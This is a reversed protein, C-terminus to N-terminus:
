KEILERRVAAMFAELVEFPVDPKTMCVSISKDADSRYACLLLNVANDPDDLELCMGGPHTSVDSALVLKYVRGQHTISPM